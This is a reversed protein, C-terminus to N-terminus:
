LAGELIAFIYEAELPGDEPLDTVHLGPRAPGSGYKARLTQPRRCRHHFFPPYLYAPASNCWTIPPHHLLLSGGEEAGM